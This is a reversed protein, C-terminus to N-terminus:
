VKEAVKLDVPVRGCEPCPSRADLGAVDYGCGACRGPGFPRRRWWLVLALTSCAAAPIWLPLTLARVNQGLFLDPLMTASRFRLECQRLDTVHSRLMRQDEPWGEGHVVHLKGRSTRVSIQDLRGWGQPRIWSAALVGISIGVLVAPVWRLRGRGRM